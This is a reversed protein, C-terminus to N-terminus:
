QVPTPLYPSRRVSYVLFLILITQLVILMMFSQVTRLFWSFRETLYKTFPTLISAYIANMKEEDECMTTIRDVGMQVAQDILSDM